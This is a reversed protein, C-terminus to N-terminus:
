RVDFILYLGEDECGADDAVAGPPLTLVMSVDHSKERCSKM